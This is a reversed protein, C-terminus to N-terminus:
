TALDYCRYPLGLRLLKVYSTFNDQSIFTYSFFRTRTAFNRLCHQIKTFSCNSFISQVRSALSTYTSIPTFGIWKSMWRKSVQRIFFPTYNGIVRSVGYRVQPTYFADNTTNTCINPSQSFSSNIFVPVFADYQSANAITCANVALDVSQNRNSKKAFRRIALILDVMNVSVRSIIGYFIQFPTIKIVINLITINALWQHVNFFCCRFLTGVSMGRFLLAYAFLSHFRRHIWIKCWYFQCIFFPSCYRLTRYISNRIQTPNFTYRM